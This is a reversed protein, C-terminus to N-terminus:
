AFRSLAEFLRNIDQQTHSAKLVIRLRATGRPVTPPRMAKIFLGEQQMSNAAAIADQEHGLQFYLIPSQPTVVLKSVMLKTQLMTAYLINERLKQRSKEGHDSKLFRIAQTLASSILPSPATSYIFTKATNIIRDIFFEPGAILGGAVGLAKGCGFMVALTHPKLAPYENAWGMGERGYIGASHAEDIVLLAGTRECVEALANANEFTGDMSHLSEVFVIKHHANSAALKKELQAYDGHRFFTVPAHSARGGVFLSAHARVDLFTAVNEFQAVAEFIAMNANFGSGCFLVRPWGLWDAALTELENTCFSTQVVVRSAGSGVGSEKANYFAAEALAPHSRLGLYDNSSFDLADPPLVAGLTRLTASEVLQQNLLECHQQLREFSNM